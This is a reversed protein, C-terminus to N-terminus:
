EGAAEAKFKVEIKSNKLNLTKSGQDISYEFEDSLNYLWTTQIKLKGDKLAWTFDYDNLHNDTTLRGKGVETFDWIVSPEGEEVWEGSNILFEATDVGPGSIIRVILFLLGGFLVLMGLIFVSIPVKGVKKPLKDFPKRANRFASRLEEETIDGSM